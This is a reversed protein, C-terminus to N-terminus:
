TGNISVIFCRDANVNEHCDRVTASCTFDVDLDPRMRASELTCPCTLNDPQVTENTKNNWMRCFEKTAGVGSFGLIEPVFSLFSSTYLIELNETRKKLAVISLGFQIRAFSKTTQKFSFFGNDGNNTVMFQNRLTQRPLEHRPLWRSVGAVPHPQFLWNEISFTINNHETENFDDEGLENVNWTCNYVTDHQILAFQTQNVNDFVQIDPDEYVVPEIYMYM